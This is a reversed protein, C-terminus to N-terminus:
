PWITTHVPIAASDTGATVTVTGEHRGYKEGQIEATVLRTEGPAVNTLPVEFARSVSPTFIVTSFRLVYGTDFAVTVTDLAQPSRNRVRVTIANLMKYRYRTPYEVQVLLSTSLREATAWREGFLGFLALVPVLLMVGLGLWRWPALHFRRRIRPPQPPQPDSPRSGPM